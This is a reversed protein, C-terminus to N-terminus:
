KLEELLRQADAREPFDVMGALLRRLERVAEAKNGTKALAAAWHYHIEANQPQAAHSKALLPLAEAADGNQFELWGLTDAIAPNDPAAEHARKAFELARDDGRQSYLWALNNLAVPQKPDADVVAEYRKIAGDEDGRQMALGGLAFNVGADRPHAAIWTLLPSEPDPRKARVAAAYAQMATQTSPAVAFLQAFRDAADDAHGQGLALEGELRLRAPSEPMKEIWRNAEAFDRKGLAIEALGALAGAQTPEAALVRQYDAVARDTKGDLLEVRSLNLLAPVFKPDIALAASYYRRAAALDKRMVAVAGRLNLPWAAKPQQSVLREITGDAAKLDGQRIQTLALAYSATWAGKGDGSAAAQLMKQARDLQGSAAYVTSVAVLDDPDKGLSRGSQAFFEAAIDNQRAELSARGALAYLVADSKAKRPLIAKTLLPKAAEVDGKRLDIAALRLLARRDNPDQNLADQLYMRAQEIQGQKANVTGLLRNAPGYKPAKAVLLELRRRASDLAGQEIEIEAKLAIASPQNPYSALLDDATSAAAALKGEALLTEVLQSQASFYQADKKKEGEVIQRFTAEADALQGSLFELRGRLVLAAPFDPHAKLVEVVLKEGEKANGQEFMLAALDSVVAPAGPALELATRYAAEAEKPQKLARHAAGAIRLVTVEDDGDLKPGKDIQTLVDSFNGQAALAQLLPIQVSAPDVGLEVARRLDAEAGVPDGLALSTRGLLSRATADDPQAQLLNKLYISATRPKGAALAQRAQSMLQEPSHRGCAAALVLGALALARLVHKARM